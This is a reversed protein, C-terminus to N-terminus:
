KTNKTVYAETIDIYGTKKMVLGKINKNMGLNLKPFVLTYHPLDAQIVDQVERYLENRKDEDVCNRAKDLLEDAKASVYNSRNASGDRQSSHFMPYLAADADGSSVNWSFLYLQKNHELTKSLYTGWEFVEIEVNIGVARLQDQMIVCMDIRTSEDNVWLKINLGDSYGAEKLLEKAKEINQEYIESKPNYGAVVTPLASNAPVAAGRFVAEALVRNDVAYAIAQRVRIDAFLPNTQDFALYLSSPAEVEVLELDKHNRVAERDMIGIDFALDVEGTELSIMRNSVEPINRFIVEDIKSKGKWSDAFSTLVVRDGTIWEKFQHQGTGVPKRFLEEGAEEAARKSMISGNTTSLHKLLPGFPEKTTIKVTNADIIEVEKIPNFLYSAQPSAIARDLSFKVDEATLTDGNHFKVNKRLHFIMSLDDIREWSEALSPHINLDEDMVTLTDFVMQLVKNSVTDISKQPDLTKIDSKQAIVLTPKLANFTEVSEEEGKKGVASKGFGVMVVIALLLGLMKVIKKNM